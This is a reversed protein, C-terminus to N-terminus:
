LVYDLGLCQEDPVVAVALWAIYVYGSIAAVNDEAESRSVFRCRGIAM